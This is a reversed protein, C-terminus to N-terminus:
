SRTQMALVNECTLLGTVVVSHESFLGPSQSGPKSQVGGGWWGRGGLVIDGEVRM